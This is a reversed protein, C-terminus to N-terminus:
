VAAESLCRVSKRRLWRMWLRLYDLFIVNSAKEDAESADQIAKRMVRSDLAPVTAASSNTVESYSKKVSSDVATEVM